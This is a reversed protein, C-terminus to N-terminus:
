SKPSKKAQKFERVKALSEEDTVDAISRYGDLGYDGAAERWGDPRVGYQKGLLAVFIAAKQAGFGPLAMIRQKLEAGDAAGDWVATTEGDHEDVIHRALAQVRTAMSGPYRHLAPKARFAAELTEPDIAAISTPDLAVDIRETLRKPGRFAVEMAVQQDLLMGMLLAFPNDSLVADADADGTLTITPM